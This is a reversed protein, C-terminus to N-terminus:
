ELYGLNSKFAKAYSSEHGLLVRAGRKEVLNKVFLRSRFWENYDRMLRGAPRGDEYNEKVHFLDSTIISTGSKQMQLEMVISGETHGPCRHLTIGPLIEFHSESFTHWNLRSVTLYQQSYLTPEMGTASTWFANKFEAEHVWIEIDKRDLFHELGGAHDFHLHSLIVKKVDKISGAGTAKIAEPLGHIEKQWIRPMCEVMVKDWNSIADECSGTDFLILGVGPYHILAAFMALSRREHKQPPLHAPFINTGYLVGSADSDLSGLNLIMGHKSQIYDIGNVFYPLFQAPNETAPFHGLGKMPTFVAGPIKAATVASDAPTCSYDYEGTLMFVACANTDISEIRGRGDWGRFYFELDGSFMQIGQSSYTWWIQRRYKAPSTPAIMGCVREPNITAENLYGALEYNPQHFPLHDSAECPIVGIVELEASRMAVALCVHGAMSAGCVIVKTLKLKKIVQAIVGVYRDENTHHGHPHQKHGSLSRGHGPLDFAYMTLKERLAKNNMLSHYQRSDAGATHLFLVNQSGTGSTEWFVKSRGWGETELWVYRGVIVDDEEDEFAEDVTSKQVENAVDRAHDLIIRWLRACRGFGLVDGLIQNGPIDGLKRLIGWYSQYPPVPIAAFFKQWDDSRASLTFVADPSSPCISLELIGKTIKAHLTEDNGPTKYAFHTAVGKAAAVFEPDANVAEELVKIRSGLLTSFISQQM